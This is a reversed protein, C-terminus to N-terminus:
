GGYRMVQSVDAADARRQVIAAAVLAFILLAVALALLSAGPIRLLPIEDLGGLELRGQTLLSAIVALGGGCAGAATLMGLLEISISWRYSSRRLGMRRAIAYAAESRRQRSQLFFLAAVLVLAATTIGLSELFDFTWTLAVHDPTAQLRATSISRRISAGQGELYAVLEPETTEKAWIEFGGSIVALDRNESEFAQMLADIDVLAVDRDGLMGPLAQPRAAVDFRVDLSALFVEGSGIDSSSTVLPLSDQQPGPALEDMLEPLSSSSFEDRWFAVDAFTDRDVGLLEVRGGRASDITAGSLRIVTTAPFPAASLDPRRGVTASADSGVQLAATQEATAETSASMVAAFVFVGIAISAATVFSRASSSGHTLRRLALYVATGRAAGASRLRPLASFAGRVIVGVGGAIFLLPFILLLVDFHAAGHAGTTVADPRTVIEYFSAAALTLAIAEWPLRRALIRTRGRAEATTARSGSAVSVGALVLGALCAAATVVGTERLVSSVLIGEPGLRRVLWLAVLWGTTAGLATPVLMEIASRLGLRWPSLGRAVLLDYEVRRRRLAFIGSGALAAIAVLQGTLSLSRVPGSISTLTEGSQSVWSPLPSDFTAAAFAAGVQSTPDSMRDNIAYVASSLARAGELTRRGAPLPFEWRFETVDDAMADSLEFFTEDDAFVLVPPRTDEGADPYILQFLPAWYPVVPEELLDHYIGAVPVSRAATGLSPRMTILDGVDVGLREASYDALWVGEDPGESEIRVHELAHDRSILRGPDSRSGAVLDIVEGVRTSTAEGTLPELQDRLLRDRYRAIELSTYSDSTVTVAPPDLEDGTSYREFLDGGAAAIFLPGAASALALLAAATLVAVMLGPFRFLRLLARM